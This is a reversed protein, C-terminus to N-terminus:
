AGGADGVIARAERRLDEDPEALPVPEGLLPEAALAQLRAKGQELLERVEPPLPDAGALDAALADAEGEMAGLEAWQRAVRSRIGDRITDALSPHAYDDAEAEAGGLVPGLQDVLVQATPRVARCQGPRSTDLADRLPELRGDVLRLTALWGLRADIEDIRCAALAVWARGMTDFRDLRAAYRNYAAVQANPMSGRIRLDPDREAHLAGLIACLREEVTLRAYVTGVRADSRM